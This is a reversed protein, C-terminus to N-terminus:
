AGRRKALRLQKNWYQVSARHAALVDDFAGLQGEKELEHQAVARAAELAKTQAEFMVLTMVAESIRIAM